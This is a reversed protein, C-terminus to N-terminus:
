FGAGLSQIVARASKEKVLSAISRFLLVGLILVGILAKLVTATMAARGRRGNKWRPSQFRRLKDRATSVAGESARITVPYRTINLFEGCLPSAVRAWAQCNRSQRSPAPERGTRSKPFERVVSVGSVALELSNKAKGTGHGAAQASM